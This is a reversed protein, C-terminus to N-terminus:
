DKIVSDDALEWFLLKWKGKTDQRLTFKTYSYELESGERIYYLGLISAYKKGDLSKYDVNSSSELKFDSIYRKAKKYDAIDEKLATLYEADTQQGKLEDDFLLRAQKALAGIQEDTLSAEYYMETIRMYLEVVEKVSKPYNNEIDRSTLAALKENIVAKETADQKSTRNSLYYYYTVGLAALIAFVLITRAYKKM